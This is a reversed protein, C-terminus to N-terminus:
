FINAHMIDRHKRVQKLIYVVFLDIDLVKRPPLIALSVIFYEFVDQSKDNMDNEIDYVQMEKEYTILYFSTGVFRIRLIMSVDCRMYGIIVNEIAYQRLSEDVFSVMIVCM